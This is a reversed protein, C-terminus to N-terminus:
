IMSMLFENSVVGSDRLERLNDRGQGWLLNLLESPDDIEQQITMESVQKKSCGTVLESTSGKDNKFKKPSANKLEDDQDESEDVDEFDVGDFGQEVGVDVWEKVVELNEIATVLEHECTPAYKSSEDQFNKLVGLAEGIKAQYKHALQELSGSSEDIRNRFQEAVSDKENEIWALAEEITDFTCQYEWEDESNNKFSVNFM